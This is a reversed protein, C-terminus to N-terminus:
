VVRAAEICCVCSTQQVFSASPFSRYFSRDRKVRKMRNEREKRTQVCISYRRKLKLKLKLKFLRMNVQRTEFDEQILQERQVFHTLDIM